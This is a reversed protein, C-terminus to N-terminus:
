KFIDFKGDKVIQVVPTYNGDRGATFTFDGLVTALSTSKLSDRIGTRAEALPKGGIAARRAADWLIYVGAYAQAAFQDPAKGTKATYAKIFAQNSAGAANLNWSAGVITGEATPGAAAIVAPSNFGNNGIVPIAPDIGVDQRAQQMILGAPKALASVVIADPNEAKIAALQTRFDTDTSHFTRESLIQIGNKQLETRFVDAGTKSFADDDGYLLSAKQLNLKAKAQKITEPVVQAESLSDRFIYDGIETISSATNSVALVPVGAQQAMPDTSQAENSLTPGIIAHVKDDDIFKRFVAVARDPVSATDEFFPTIKPEENQANIEDIAVQAGAKSSNGYVANDGSMAFAFGIRLEPRSASCAALGFLLVV